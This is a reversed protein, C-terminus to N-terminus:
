HSTVLTGLRRLENVLDSFIRKNQENENIVTNLSGTSPLTKMMEALMSVWQESDVQAVEVIEELEVKWQLLCSFTCM